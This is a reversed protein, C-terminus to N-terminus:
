QFYGDALFGKAAEAFERTIREMQSRLRNLHSKIEAIRVDDQSM